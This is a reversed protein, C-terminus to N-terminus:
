GGPSPLVQRCCLFTNGGLWPVHMAVWGLRFFVVSWIMYTLCPNTCGMLRLCARTPCARCCLQALEVAFYSNAGDSWKASPPLSPKPCVVYM